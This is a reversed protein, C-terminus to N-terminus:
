VSIVVGKKLLTGDDALVAPWVTWDCVHEDKNGEIDFKEKDIVEGKPIWYICIDPKTCCLKYLSQICRHIFLRVSTPLNDKDFSKPLRKLLYEEVIDDIENSTKVTQAENLCLDYVGRVIRMLQYIVEEENREKRLCTRAEKWENNYIDWFDEVTSSAM